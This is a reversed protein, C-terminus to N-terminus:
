RNGFCECTAIVILSADCSVASHWLAGYFALWAHTYNHSSISSNELLKAKLIYWILKTYFKWHNLRAPIKYWWTQLEVSWQHHLLSIYIMSHLSHVTVTFIKFKAIKETKKSKYNGREKRKLRATGVCVEKYLRTTSAHSQPRMMRIYSKCTLNRM